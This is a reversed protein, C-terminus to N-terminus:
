IKIGKKWKMNKAIKWSSCILIRSIIQIIELEYCFIIYQLINRTNKLKEIDFENWKKWRQNKKQEWLEQYKYMMKTEWDERRERNEASYVRWEEWEEGLKKRENESIKKWWIRKKLRESKFKQLYETDISDIYDCPKVWYEDPQVKIHIHFLKSDQDEIINEIDEDGAHLIYFDWKFIKPLSQKELKQESQEHIDLM